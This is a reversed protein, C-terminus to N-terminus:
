QAVVYHTAGSFRIREALDALKQLRQPGLRQRQGRLACSTEYHSMGTLLSLERVVYPSASLADRFAPTLVVVAVERKGRFRM